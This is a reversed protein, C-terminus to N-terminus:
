FILKSKPSLKKVFYFYFMYRMKDSKIRGFGRHVKPIKQSFPDFYIKDLTCRKEVLVKLFSIM